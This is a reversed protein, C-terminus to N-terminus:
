AWVLSGVIVNFQVAYQPEPAFAGGAVAWIGARARGAPVLPVDHLASQWMSTVSGSPVFMVIHATVAGDPFQPVLPLVVRDAPEIESQRFREVLGPRMALPAPGVAM